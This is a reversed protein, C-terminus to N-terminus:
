KLLIYALYDVSGSVNQYWLKSVQNIPIWDTTEGVSIELFMHTNDSGIYFPVHNADYSCFKVLKCSGSPFPLASASGTVLHVEIGQPNYSLLENLSSM